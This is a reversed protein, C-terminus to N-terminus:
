GSQRAVNLFRMRLFQELLAAVIDLEHRRCRLKRTHQSARHAGRDLLTADRHEHQRTVHRQTFSRCSISEHVSLAGRAGVDIEALGVERRNGFARADEARPHFLRFVYRARQFVREGILTRRPHVDDRGFM